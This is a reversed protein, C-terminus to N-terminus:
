PVQLLQDIRSSLLNATTANNYVEAIRFSKDILVISGDYQVYHAYSDIIDLKQDDYDNGLIWSIGYYDRIQGLIIDCGQCSAVSVTVIALEDKSYKSRVANLQRLQNDNIEYIQGSCGVLAMFHIAIVKGRLQNLSILTGNVDKLSFNPALDVSSPNTDGTADPPSKQGGIYQWTGYATLVLVILAVGLLLKQMPFKRPKIKEDLGRQTRYSEQSRQNNM